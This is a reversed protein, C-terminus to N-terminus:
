HFLATLRQSSQSCRHVGFSQAEAHDGPLNYSDASSMLLLISLFYFKISNYSVSIVAQQGLLM